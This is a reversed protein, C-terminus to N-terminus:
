NKCQQLHFGNQQAIHLITSRERYYRYAALKHENPHITTSHITPDITTPKHYIDIQLHSTERIITLNLFDICGNEDQTPNFQLNTHMSNAHQILYDQDTSETDYIILIDDIYRTYFWIQKSKLLPRIHIHELHQLFIEAITGSIPSGMAIGKNPQYIQEQFIFYNKHLITELLKCIQTAIEPENHKLMPTKTIDTTETIPINVYLDKIDMTILRHKTNINLKTLDQALTTSNIITHHNDLNLHQQLIKNLKKTAKYSPDNRNNIVPRIPNGAKHM